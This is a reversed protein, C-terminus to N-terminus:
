GSYERKRLLIKARPSPTRVRGFAYDPPRVGKLDYNVIIHALLAELESAAFFRDMAPKSLRTLSNGLVAFNEGDPALLSEMASPCFFDPGTSIMHGKFIGENATQGREERMKAFRFGDFVEANNYNASDHQVFRGAVRLFSGYPITTGDSFQFGDKVHKGPSSGNLRQSERLFSDVKYMNDLAVKTWGHKEIVREVEARMPLFHSLNTTLDLLANTLAMTTTHIAAMNIVPLRLAISRAERSSGQADELLWSLFDDPKEAWNAGLEAEKVIREDIMPGLFKMAHRLAKNKPSLFPGLIRVMIPSHHFLAIVHSSKFLAGAYAICMTLYEGVFIRNSIRAAVRIVTPLVAIPKWDASDLTILDEIALGIEDVLEPLLRAINRTLKTRVTHNHYRCRMEPGMTYNGQLSEQAGDYFSLVDDPAATIEAIRKKGNAIYDWRWFLPVRFVGDPDRSYGERIVDEVHYFYHYAAAYSSFFGNGGILAPVTDKQRNWLWSVAVVTALAYLLLSTTDVGAMLAM